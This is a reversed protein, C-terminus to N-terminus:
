PPCLRCVVCSLRCVVSALCRWLLPKHTIFGLHNPYYTIDDPKPEFIFIKLSINFLM